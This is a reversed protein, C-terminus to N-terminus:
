GIFIGNCGQLVEIGLFYRMKGLDTMAFENMMMTKFEQSMSEHNGIYILDDVYVCVILIEGGEKKVFLTHEHPCKLFNNAVFHSELKSYLARPARKLGYLATKLKYVQHECEQFIYGPPKELYVDENIKGHLFASKIDLQYISWRKTAVLAVVFRITELRAVLSFIKRYDIGEEQTYGKAVILDAGSFMAFNIVDEYTLDDSTVYDKMWTPPKRAKGETPVKAGSLSLDPFNSTSNSVITSTIAAADKLSTQIVEEAIQCSEEMPNLENADFTKSTKAEGWDWTADEQFKVDRTIHIKENIHDYLKYAKSEESVSLLMYKTSKDDLKSRKQNLVHVFDIYGFIRFYSISSKMESWAEEPTINKVQENCFEIFEKSTYEGGRDIRLIQILVGVQKEVLAKFKKFVDLAEGKEVLFFVWVKIEMLPLISLAM